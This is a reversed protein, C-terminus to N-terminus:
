FCTGHALIRSSIRSENTHDFLRLVDHCEFGTSSECTPVVDKAATDSRKLTNTRFVQCDMLQDSSDPTVSDLFKDHGCVWRELPVASCQENCVQQFIVVDLDSSKGSSNGGATNKLEGVSFHQRVGQFSPLGESWCIM